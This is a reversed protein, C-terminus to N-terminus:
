DTDRYLHLCRRQTRRREATRDHQNIVIADECSVGDLQIRLAETHPLGARSWGLDFPNGVLVSMWLPPGSRCSTPRYYDEVVRVLVPPLLTQRQFFPQLPPFRVDMDTPIPLPGDGHFHRLRINNSPSRRWTTDVGHVEIAVFPKSVVVAVAALQYVDAYRVFFPARPCRHGPNYALRLTWQGPANVRLRRTGPEKQSVAGDDPWGGLRLPICLRRGDMEVDQALRAMLRVDIQLAQPTTKQAFDVTVDPVRHDVILLVTSITGGPVNWWTCGPLVVETTYIAM